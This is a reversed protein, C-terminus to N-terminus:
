EDESFIVRDIYSTVGLAAGGYITLRSRVSEQSASAQPLLDYTTVNWSWNNFRFELYKGTVPDITLKMVNMVSPAFPASLGSELTVWGAVNDRVQVLTAGTAFRVQGQFWNSEALYDLILLVQDTGLSLNFAWEVSKRQGPWTRSWRQVYVNNTTGVNLQTRISGSGYESVLNTFEPGQNAGSAVVQCLGDIKDFTDILIAQGSRDYNVPSGLRAALESIDVTSGVNVSLGSKQWDPTGRSM